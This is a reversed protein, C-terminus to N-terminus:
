KSRKVDWGAHCIVFVSKTIGKFFKQSDSVTPFNFFFFPLVIANVYIFDRFVLDLLLHTHGGCLFNYFRM